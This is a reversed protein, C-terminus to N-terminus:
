VWRVRRYDFTAIPFWEFNANWYSFWWFIVYKGNGHKIVPPYSEHKIIACINDSSVMRPQAVFWSNKMVGYIGSKSTWRRGCPFDNLELLIMMETLKWTMNHWKGPSFDRSHHIFFHVDTLIIQCPWDTNKRPAIPRPLVDFCISYPLVWQHYVM